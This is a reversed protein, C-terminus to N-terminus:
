VLNFGEKKKENKKLNTEENQGVFVVFNTSINIKLYLIQQQILDITILIYIPFKEMVNLCKFILILLKSVKKIYFKCFHYKSKTLFCKLFLSM